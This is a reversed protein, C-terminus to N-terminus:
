ECHCGRGINWRGKLDAAVYQFNEWAAMEYVVDQFQGTSDGLWIELQSGASSSQTTAIDTKGDGNFDGTLLAPGAINTTLPGTRFTGDGNSFLVQVDTTDGRDTTLGLLLDTKSDGNVDAVAM